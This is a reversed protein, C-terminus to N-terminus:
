LPAKKIHQCIVLAAYELAQQFSHEKLGVAFDDGAVDSIAFIAGLQAGYLNCLTMVASLEMDVGIAGKAAYARVREPTECYIADTTWISGEHVAFSSDQHALETIREQLAQTQPTVLEQAGYHPSTGEDCLSSRPCIIDGIAISKNNQSRIGGCISLLLIEKAGLELLPQLLFTIVPAGIAPSHLSFNATQHSDCIGFFHTTREAQDKCNNGFQEHAVKWFAEGIPLTPALIIPKDIDITKSLTKKAIELLM